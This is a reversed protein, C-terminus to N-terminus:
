GRRKGAPARGLTPGGKEVESHAKIVEEMMTQMMKRGEALVANETEELGRGHTARYMAGKSARFALIAQEAILKEATDGVVLTLGDM